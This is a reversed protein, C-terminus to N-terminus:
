LELLMKMLRMEITKWKGKIAQFSDDWLNMNYIM